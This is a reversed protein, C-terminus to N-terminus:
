YPGNFAIDTYLLGPHRYIPMQEDDQGLAFSDALDRLIAPDTVTISPAAESKIYISRSESFAARVLHEVEGDRMKNAPLKAIESPDTLDPRRSLMAVAVIAALACALRAPMKLHPSTM